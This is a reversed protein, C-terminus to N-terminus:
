EAAYGVDEDGNPEAYGDGPGPIISEAAYGVDEDGLPTIPGLNGFTLPLTVMVTMIATLATKVTKPTRTNKM